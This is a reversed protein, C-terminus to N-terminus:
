KTIFSVWFNRNKLPDLHDVDDQDLLIKGDKVPLAHGSQRPDIWIILVAEDYQSAAARVIIWNKYTRQTTINFKYNCYQEIWNIQNRLGEISLYENIPGVKDVWGLIEMSHIICTM